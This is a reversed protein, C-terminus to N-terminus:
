KPDAGAASSYGGIDRGLDCTYLWEIVDGDQLMYRSSGYNPFWGNVKYMWGSLEGCDFEYLNHIGEVYHSNYIPTMEFEMHIKNNKMERLLVDFVSEGEYFTIKQAKYIVGDEPLVELKDENFMDMHELISAASVSLTVTLPKAKDIKVDQWEVPQPKGEPVPDTLYKDKKTETANAAPAEKAPLEGTASESNDVQSSQPEKKLHESAESKAAPETAQVAPQKEKDQASLENEEAPGSAASEDTASPEPSAAQEIADLVPAGDATEAPRETESEGDKMSQEALISGDHRMQTEKPGGGLFFAAALLAAILFAVLWRKQTM